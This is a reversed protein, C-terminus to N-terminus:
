FRLLVLGLWRVKAADVQGTAIIVLRCSIQLAGILAHYISAPLPSLYVSLLFLSACRRILFVVSNFAFLSVPASALSLSLLSSTHTHPPQTPPPWVHLAIMPLSYWAQMPLPTGLM